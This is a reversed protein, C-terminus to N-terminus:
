WGGGRDSPGDGRGEGSCTKFQVRRMWPFAVRVGGGGIARRWTGGGVLWRRSVPGDDTFEGSYLSVCGGSGSVIKGGLIHVSRIHRCTEALPPEVHAGGGANLKPFDLGDKGPQNRGRLSPSAAPPQSEM